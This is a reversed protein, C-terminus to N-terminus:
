WFESGQFIDPVGPVTLQLLTQALGNLAGAPGIRHALDAARAPSGDRDAMIAGTSSRAAREYEPTPAPADTPRKGARLAKLQWDAIRATFEAVGDGDAADLLMPWAAVIVQYLMAEDGPSPMPTDGGRRHTANLTLWRRVSAAWQEPMDSLVALRASVD